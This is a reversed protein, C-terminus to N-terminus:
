KTPVSLLLNGASFPDVSNWNSDCGSSTERSCKVGSTKWTQKQCMGTHMGLYTHSELM